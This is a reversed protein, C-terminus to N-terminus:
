LIHYANPLDGTPKNKSSFRTKANLILILSVARRKTKHFSANLIILEFFFICLTDSLICFIKKLWLYSFRTTAYIQFNILYFWLLM